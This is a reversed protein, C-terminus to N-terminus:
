MKGLRNSQETICRFLVSLVAFLTSGPDVINARVFRSTQINLM